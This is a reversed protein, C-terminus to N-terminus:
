TSPSYTATAGISTARMSLSLTRRPSTNFGAIGDGLELAGVGLDRQAVGLRRQRLSLGIEGVHLFPPPGSSIAASSAM